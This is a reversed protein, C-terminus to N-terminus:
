EQWFAPPAFQGGKIRCDVCRVPAISYHSPLPSNPNAYVEDVLLLGPNAMAVEIAESIRLELLECSLYYGDQVRWLRPLEEKSIFIRKEAVEVAEAMGIVHYDPNSICMINGNLQSPMPGFIDGLNESSERVQSWYRYAAETMPIQKVLISYRSSLKESLNPIMAVPFRHIADMSLEESTAILISRSRQTIYCIHIDEGTGRYRVSSDQPQLVINSMYIPNYRWTEEYEWRYYRTSNSPDETSVYLEVGEETDAWEVNSIEQSTKVEVFESEYVHPGAQIHLKYKQNPDLVPHPITINGSSVPESYYRTGNESEIMMVYLPTLDYGGPYGTVPQEAENLPSAYSLTYHSETGRVNIYGDVVLIPAVDHVEYDMEFPERCSALSLLGMMWFWLQYKYRIMIRKMM